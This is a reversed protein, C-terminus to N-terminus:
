WVERRVEVRRVITVLWAMPARQATEASKSLSPRGSMTAAEDLSLATEHNRLSPGCYSGSVPNTNFPPNGFNLM